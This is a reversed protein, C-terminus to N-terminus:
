GRMAQNRRNSEGNTWLLLRNPFVSWTLKRNKININFAYGCFALRGGTNAMERLSAFIPCDIKQTTVTIATLLVLAILVIM